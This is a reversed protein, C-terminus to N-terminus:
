HFTMVMVVETDTNCDGDGCLKGPLNKPKTSVTELIEVALTARGWFINSNSQAVPGETTVPTLQTSLTLHQQVSM